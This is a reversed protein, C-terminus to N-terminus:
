FTDRAAVDGPCMNYNGNAEPLQVHVNRGTLHAPGNGSLRFIECLNPDHKDCPRGQARTIRMIDGRPPRETMRVAEAHTDAYGVVHWGDGIWKSTILVTYM